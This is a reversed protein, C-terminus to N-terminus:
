VPLSKHGVREWTASSAYLQLTWTTLKKRRKFKCTGLLLYISEKIQLCLLVKESLFVYYLWMAKMLSSIISYVRTYVIFGLDIIVSM